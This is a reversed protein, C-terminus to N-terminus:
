LSRDNRMQQIVQDSELTLIVNELKARLSPIPSQHM